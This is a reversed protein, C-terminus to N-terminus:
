KLISFTRVSGVVFLAEGNQYTDLVKLVISVMIFQKIMVVTIM